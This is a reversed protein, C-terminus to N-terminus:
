STACAGVVMAEEGLSLAYALWTKHKPVEKIRRTRTYANLQIHTLRSFNLPLNRSDARWAHIMLIM